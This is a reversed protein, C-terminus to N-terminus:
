RDRNECRASPRVVAGEVLQGEVSLEGDAERVRDVDRAVEIADRVDVALVQAVDREHLAVHHRVVPQRLHVDQPPEARARQRLQEAREIRADDVGVELHPHV